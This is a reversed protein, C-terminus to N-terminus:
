ARAAVQEIIISALPLGTKVCRARKRRLARHIGNTTFPLGSLCPPLSVPSSESTADRRAPGPVCNKPRPRDSCCALPVRPSKVSAPNPRTGRLANSLSIFPRRLHNAGVLIDAVREAALGDNRYFFADINAAHVGAFDFRRTEDDINDIM